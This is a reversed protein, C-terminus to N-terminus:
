REPLRTDITIGRGHLFDRFGRVDEKVGRDVREGESELGGNCAALGVTAVAMALVPALRRTLKTVNM